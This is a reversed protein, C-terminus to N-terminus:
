KIELYIFWLFLLHINRQMHTKNQLIFAVTYVIAAVTFLTTEKLILFTNLDGSLLDLYWFM